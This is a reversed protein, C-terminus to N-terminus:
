APTGGSELWARIAEWLRATRPGPAELRRAGIRGVPVIGRVSNTLFVEEAEDLWGPGFGPEERAELGLRPAWELVVGRLIGALLPRASPDPTRLTTGAVAFVNTRTGEAVSGDPLFGLVEEEGRRRAAEHDLRKRWYNLTKHRALPDDPHASWGAEPGGLTAGGPGLPPPLPAARMWLTSGSSESLGGSLTIRLMADGEHGAARLLEAVASADPLAEPILPVRLAAASRRLRALHRDLLAPHGNWTRFTEFLGLGHEFTRDLVSVSLSEAPVVRGAHWIM